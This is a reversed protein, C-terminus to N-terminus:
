SQKRRAKETSFTTNTKARTSYVKRSQYTFSFSRELLIIAKSLSFDKVKNNLLITLLAVDLPLSAVKGM